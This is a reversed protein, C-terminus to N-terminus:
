RLVPYIVPFTSRFRTQYVGSLSRPDVSVYENAAFPAANSMGRWAKRGPCFPGPLSAPVPPQCFHGGTRGVMNLHSGPALKKM